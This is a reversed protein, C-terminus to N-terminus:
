DKNLRPPEVVGGLWLSSKNVSKSAEKFFWIEAVTLVGIGVKKWFSKKKYWVITNESADQFDQNKGDKNEDEMLKYRM